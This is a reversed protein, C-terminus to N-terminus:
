KAVEKLLKILNKAADIEMNIRSEVAYSGIHPTLVVNNMGRLVGNYPEKDFVDLAAGALRGNKLAQFLANEDVAGGRSVNILLASKKMQGFEEEGIIRSGVSAHISVIDSNKLLEGLPINNVGPVGGKVKIDTYSIECGFSKLLLSVKQGIRGFGIIGIRKGSLLNGMKKDWEGARMARDMESIKRLLDLILAVTLEAVALTPGSPTNLVKIGFEKAAAIDINEMGVGCRSISRLGELKVLVNRNYVETGALIGACGKCLVVIEEESLKRGFKNLSIEFGEKKLMEIPTPDYKAFSTTTVAIKKNM